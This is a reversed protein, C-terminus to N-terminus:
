KTTRKIWWMQGIGFLNSVTWYLVLGAPMWAFMATFIVPMWKMMKQTQAMPDNGTVKNAASQLHMQWWMSAGMVIPLIFYPDMVALDSIWLFQSHRLPAAILLAKYLAFFIPIQLLMPLCGSMPSTKSDKYLKMMEQQMRVKDDAYLKQIRQMEPQMKQMAAMGVFSKRTLPWMLIRIIITLLIIAVGYNAVLSYLANLAWLFPRSLFWFWGYDLTQDIGRISTAAAKLVEPTKPGAFIRTTFTTIGGAPVSVASASAEAQLRGDGLPKIKITQDVSGLSAIVQWYQDEFGVFGAPTTWAYSKKGVSKWSEREISSNAFAVGGTSVGATDAGADRVIRAYPVFSVDRKSNNRITDTITIIYNEKDSIEIARSFEIGDSNKWVINEFGTGVNKQNWHTAVNPATTGNAILGVEIFENKGSLIGVAEESNKAAKYNHLRIDSIRLGQANFGMKWGMTEHGLPVVVANSVDEVQAAAVDTNQEAPAPSQKPSLWASFIWWALLFIVIWWLVGTFKSKKSNADKAALWSSFGSNNELYKVM